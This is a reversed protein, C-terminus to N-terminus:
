IIRKPAFSVADASVLECPVKFQHIPLVHQISEGHLHGYVCYSVEYEELMDVWASRAFTEDTPPYHLMCLIPLTTKKAHELSLRLRGLERRYIKQDEDTFGRSSPLTWGRTGAIVYDGIVISDNQIAHISPPLHERVKKITSWWYDHNGKIMIKTGPLNEIFELDPKAEQFNMAWSIDGPLLVIDDSRVLRSWNEAIREHHDRWTDGFVDMPKNTGFSLHLDGIAFIAM